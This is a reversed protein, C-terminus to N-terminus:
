LTHQFVDQQHLSYKGPAYMSDVVHLSYRWTLNLISVVLLGFEFGFLILVSKGNTMTYDICKYALLADLVALILILSVLRMHTTYGVPMVQDLHELRSKGLWHFAKLFLLAGFLCLIAPSIENRFITLALCTETITYKARDMLLELEVDRLQGLFITKSVRGLLLASALAMNGAIVFSVKSSVLYLVIPYFQEHVYVAYALLSITSLLSLAFYSDFRM